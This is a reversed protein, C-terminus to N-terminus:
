RFNIWHTFGPLKGAHLGLPSRRPKNRRVEPRAQQCQGYSGPLVSRPRARYEAVFRRVNGFGRGIEIGLRAATIFFRPLPQALGLTRLVLDRAIGFRGIRQQGRCALGLELRSLVDFFRATRKRRELGLIGLAAFSRQLLEL